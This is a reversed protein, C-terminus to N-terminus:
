VKSAVLFLGVLVCIGQWCFAMTYRREAWWEAGVLAIVCAGALGLVGAILLAVGTARNVDYWIQPSALTSPTRFGYFRNPPIWDLMLPVGLVAVLIPLIFTFASILSVKM